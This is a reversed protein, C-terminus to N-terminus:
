WVAENARLLGKFWETHGDPFLLNVGNRHRYSNELHIGFPYGANPRDVAYYQYSDSIMFRVSPNRIASIRTYRSPFAYRNLGYSFTGIDNVRGPLQMTQYYTPCTVVKPYLKSNEAPWPAPAPYYSHGNFADGYYLYYAWPM